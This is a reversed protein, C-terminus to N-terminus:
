VKGFASGFKRGAAVQCMPPNSVAETGGASGRCKQRGQVQAGSCTGCTQEQNVNTNNQPKFSVGERAQEKELNPDIKSLYWGNAPGWGSELDSSLRRRNQDAKEFILQCVIVLVWELRWSFNLM